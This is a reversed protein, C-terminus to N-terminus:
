ALSRLRRAPQRPLRAAAVRLEDLVVQTYLATSSILEHRMFEQVQRLDAGARLMETGCWHRLRHYTFGTVGVSEFHTCVREHVTHATIHTGPHRGPFWWKQGARAEAVDALLDDLPITRDTDGKGFIRLLGDAADPGAVAAAESVRLAQYAGLLIWVRVDGTAPDLGRQLEGTTIPRPYRKPQRPRRIRTTPAIAPGEGLLQLWRFYAEIDGFYAARTGPSRYRSLWRTIEDIDLGAPDKGTDAEIQRLTGLRRRVTNPSHGEARMANLWRNQAATNCGHTM